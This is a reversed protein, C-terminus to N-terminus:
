VSRHMLAVSFCYNFLQPNLHMRSYACTSLLDQLQNEPVALLVELVEKAMEQHSPLFLSFVADKPLKSAKPFEPLKNLKNLVIVDTTENGFRNNIEAGIDQYDKDLFEKAVQFVTKDEGKPTILPEFPRDFLLNFSKLVREM